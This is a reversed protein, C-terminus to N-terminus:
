SVQEPRKKLVIEGDGDVKVRTQSLDVHNGQPDSFQDEAYPRDYGDPIPPHAKIGYKELKAYVAEKEGPEITIGFHNLGVGIFRGDMLKHPLIAFNVYGDSVWYAGDALGIIQLGFVDSYFEALEKPDRAMLALHQIKAM